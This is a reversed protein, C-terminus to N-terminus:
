EPVRLLDGLADEAHHLHYWLDFNAAVEGNDFESQAEHMEQLCRRLYSYAASVHQGRNKAATAIRESRKMRALREWARHLSVMRESQGRRAERLNLVYNRDAPLSKLDLGTEFAIRRAKFWPISPDGDEEWASKIGVASGPVSTWGSDRIHWAVSASGDGRGVFEWLHGREFAAALARWDGRKGRTVVEPQDFSLVGLAAEALVRIKTFHLERQEAHSRKAYLAHAEAQRRAEDLVDTAGERILLEVQRIALPLDMLTEIAVSETIALATM